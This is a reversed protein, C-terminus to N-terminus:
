FCKFYEFPELCDDCRYLAKCATSGFQATVVTNTSGCKPCKLKPEEGLLSKKSASGQPPVIGVELLKKKGEESIWDTTWPPSIQSKVEFENIGARRLAIGIQEEILDMAPCGSYTPSITVRVKDNEMLEVDRLIGLDFITLVPIEPDKVRTLIDYVEQSTPM